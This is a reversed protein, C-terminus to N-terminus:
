RGGAVRATWARRAGGAGRRPATHPGSGALAAALTRSHAHCIACALADAADTAPAAGLGLLRQVMVQVQRKDAQGYGVVAQKIRLAAYEHVALGGSVAACIAAGRAQGLLLTSQPNISVFVKEVTAVHPRHDRIVDALARLITGLREHLEGAPVRVVGAAVFALRAGDVEVIGYGTRNLGPDIGLIRLDSV